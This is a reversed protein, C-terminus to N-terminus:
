NCEIQLLGAAFGRNQMDVVVWISGDEGATYTAVSTSATASVCSSPFDANELILITAHQGDTTREALLSIDVEDGAMVNVQVIFDGGTYGSGCTAGYSNVKDHQLATSFEVYPSIAATDTDVAHCDVIEYEYNLSDEICGAPSGWVAVCQYQKGFGGSITCMPDTGMACVGDLCRREQSGFCMGSYRIDCVTGDPMQHSVCSPAGSETDEECTFYNCDDGDGCASGATCVGSLCVSVGDCVDASECWTNDPANEDACIDDEEVCASTVCEEGADTDACPANRHTCDGALCVDEGNCFLGDECSVDTDYEAFLTCADGGEDCVRDRCPNSDGGCPISSGDTVCSGAACSQEGDCYDGSECSSGSGGDDIPSWGCTWPTGLGCQGVNCDPETAHVCDTGTICCGEAMAGPDPPTYYCHNDWDDCLEQNCSSGDACHSTETCCGVALTHDPASICHGDDCVERTCENSDDCDGADECCGGPLVAPSSYGCINDVCTEATCNDGDACDNADDCCGPASVPSHSCTQLFTCIDTTCGNWDECDGHAACCNAGLDPDAIHECQKKANCVAATCPNGDDACDGADSCCGPLLPLALTYQCAHAECSVYACSSSACDYEDECCGGTIDEVVYQCRRDPGCVDTTCDSEDNCHDTTLCCGGTTLWNHECTWNASNCDDSTCDDLDDCDGADECCGAPAPMTQSYVCTGEDCVDATCINDDLCEWDEVCENLDLTDTDDPVSDSDTDADTDTDTDTDTDSDGDTATETDDSSTDTTDSESDDDTTPLFDPEVCKGNQCVLNQACDSTSKCEKDSCGSGVFLMAIAAAVLLLHITNRITM